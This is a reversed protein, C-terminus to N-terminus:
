SIFTVVCSFIGTTFAVAISIGVYGVYQPKDKPSVIDSLYAIVIPSATGLLALPLRVAMLQWFERCLTLLLFSLSTEFLAILITDRRGIVDSVRGMVVSGVLGSAAFCASYLGLQGETAGIGDESTIFFSFFPIIFAVALSDFCVAVYAPTFNVKETSAM